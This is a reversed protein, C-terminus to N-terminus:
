SVNGVTAWVKVKQSVLRDLYIGLCRYFYGLNLCRKRFQELGVLNRITTVLLDSSLEEFEVPGMFSM